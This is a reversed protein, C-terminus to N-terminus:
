ENKRRDLYDVLYEIATDVKREWLLKGDVTSIARVSKSTLLYVSSGDVILHTPHMDNDMQHHWLIRGTVIEVGYITDDRWDTVVFPHVRGPASDAALSSRFTTTWLIEGTQTDLGYIESGGSYL